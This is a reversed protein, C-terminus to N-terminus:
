PDRFEGKQSLLQGRYVHANGDDLKQVNRAARDIDEAAHEYDGKIALAESRALYPWYNNPLLSAARSYSELAKDIDGKELYIRARHYYSIWNSRGSPDMRIASDLDDAAKDLDLYQGDELFKVARSSYAQATPLSEISANYYYIITQTDPFPKQAVAYAMNLYVEALEKRSLRPGKILDNCAAIAKTSDSEGLCKSINAAQAVQSSLAYLFM